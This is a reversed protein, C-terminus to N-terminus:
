ITLMWEDGEWAPLTVLLQCNFLTLNEWKPFLVFCIIFLLSYINRPEMFYDVDTYIYIEGIFLCSKIIEREQVNM